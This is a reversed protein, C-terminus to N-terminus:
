TERKIRRHKLKTNKEYKIDELFNHQNFDCFSIPVRLSALKNYVIGGKIRERDGM